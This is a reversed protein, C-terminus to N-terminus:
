RCPHSPLISEVFKITENALYRVSINGMRVPRGNPYFLKIALLKDDKYIPFIDFRLLDKHRVKM